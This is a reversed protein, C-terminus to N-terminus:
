PTIIHTNKLFSILSDHAHVTHFVFMFSFCQHTLAPFVYVILRYWGSRKPIIGLTVVEPATLELWPFLLITMNGLKDDSATTFDHWCDRTSSIRTFSFLSKDHHWSRWWQPAALQHWSYEWTHWWHHWLQCGSLEQTGTIRYAWGSPQTCGGLHCAVSSQRTTHPPTISYFIHPIGCPMEGQHNKIYSSLTPKVEMSDPLFIQVANYNIIFNMGVETSCM